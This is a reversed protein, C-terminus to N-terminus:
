LDWSISPGKQKLPDWSRRQTYTIVLTPPGLERDVIEEKAVFLATRVLPTLLRVQNKKWM